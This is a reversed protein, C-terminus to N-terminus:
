TIQLCITICWFTSRYIYVSLVMEVRSSGTWHVTLSDASWESFQTQWPIPVKMYIMFFKFTISECKGSSATCSCERGSPTSHEKSTLWINGLFPATAWGCLPRLMRLHITACSEEPLRLLKVALLLMQGLNKKRALSQWIKLTFHRNGTYTPFNM